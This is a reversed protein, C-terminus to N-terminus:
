SANDWPKAQDIILVPIGDIIPFILKEGRCILTQTATNESLPTHCSPCALPIKM